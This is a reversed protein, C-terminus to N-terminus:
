SFPIGSHCAWRLYQDEILDELDALSVYLSQVLYQFIQSSTRERCGIQIAQALIVAAEQILEGIAIGSQLIVHTGPSM